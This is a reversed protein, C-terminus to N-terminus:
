NQKALTNSFSKQATEGEINKSQSATIVNSSPVVFQDGSMQYNSEFTPPTM